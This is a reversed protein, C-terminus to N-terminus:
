KLLRRKRHCHVSDSLPMTGSKLVDYIETALPLDNKTHKLTLQPATLTHV